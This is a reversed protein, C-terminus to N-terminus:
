EAIICQKENKNRLYYVSCFLFTDNQHHLTVKGLERQYHIYPIHFITLLWIGCRTIDYIGLDTLRSLASYFTLQIEFLGHQAFILWLFLCIRQYVIDRSKGQCSFCLIKFLNTHMPVCYQGFSPLTRWSQTSFFFCRVFVTKGRTFPYKWWVIYNPHLKLRAM